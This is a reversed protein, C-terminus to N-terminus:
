GASQGPPLTGLTWDCRADDQRLRRGREGVCVGAGGCRTSCSSIRRRHTAAISWRSRTSWGSCSARSRGTRGCARAGLCQSRGANAQLNDDATVRVTSRGAARAATTTLTLTKTEGPGLTGLEAEIESGQPHQLGPPLKDHIVVNPAPGTGPNSVIIQFTVTDGILAAEPGTKTVAIQPRTIRTRLACATTFTAIANAEIEGRRGAAHSACNESRGPRSGHRPEV